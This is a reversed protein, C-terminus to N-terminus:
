KEIKKQAETIRMELDEVTVTSHQIEVPGGQPGEHTVRERRGWRDPYSRELFWGAAQWNGEHAARQIQTIARVEAEARARATMVKFVVYQWEQPDFPDPCWDFIEDLAKTTNMLKKAEDFDDVPLEVSIAELVIAEADVDLLSVRELEAEGRTTWAYYTVQKVGVWACSSLIYNGGALSNVFNQTVRPNLTSKVGPRKVKVVKQGAPRESDETM